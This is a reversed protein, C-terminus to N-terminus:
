VDALDGDAVGSALTSSEAYCRVSAVASSRSPLTIEAFLGDTVGDFAGVVARARSGVNTITGASSPNADVTGRIGVFAGHLSL